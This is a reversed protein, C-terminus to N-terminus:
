GEHHAGLVRAGINYKESSIPRTTTGGGETQAYVSLSGELLLKLWPPAEERNKGYNDGM